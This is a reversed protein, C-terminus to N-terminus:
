WNMNGLRPDDEPDDSSNGDASDDAAHILVITEKRQSTSIRSLPCAARLERNLTQLTAKQTEPLRLGALIAFFFTGSM